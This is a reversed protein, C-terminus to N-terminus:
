IRNNKFLFFLILINVANLTGIIKYILRSFKLTIFVSFTQHESGELGRKSMLNLEEKSLGQIMQYMSTDAFGHPSRGHVYYGYQTHTLILM